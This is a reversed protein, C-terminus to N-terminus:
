RRIARAQLRRGFGDDLDNPHFMNWKRAFVDFRTVLVDV